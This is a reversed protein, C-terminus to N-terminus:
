DNSDTVIPRLIYREPADGIGGEEEKEDDEECQLVAQNGRKNTLCESTVPIAPRCRNM